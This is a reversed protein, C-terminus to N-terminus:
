DEDLDLLKNIEDVDVKEDEGRNFTKVLCEIGLWSIIIISVFSNWFKDRSSKQIRVDRYM